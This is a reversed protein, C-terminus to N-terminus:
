GIFILCRIKDLTESSVELMEVGVEATEVKMELLVDWLVLEVRWVSVDESTARGVEEVLPPRSIVESTGVMM